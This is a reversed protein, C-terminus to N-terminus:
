GHSSAAKGAIVTDQAAGDHDLSNSHDLTNAHKKTIADQAAASLNSDVALDTLAALQANKNAPDYTAKEMAGSAIPLNLLRSGDISPLSGDENVMLPFGM